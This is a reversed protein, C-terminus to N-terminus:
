YYAPHSEIRRRIDDCTDSDFVPISVDAFGMKREIHVFREGYYDIYNLGSVSRKKQGSDLMNNLFIQVQNRM